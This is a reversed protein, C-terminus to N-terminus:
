RELVEPAQDGLAEGVRVILAAARPFRRRGIVIGLAAATLGAVLTAVVYGVAVWPHGAREIGAADVAMTSYTTWGGLLGTALFPRLYRTPGFRELLVTLVLGLLFAGSTNIVFTATTFHGAASPWALGLEYRGATGAAGGLFVAALVGPRARHAPGTWPHHVASPEGRDTPALDPDIPFTDAVLRRAARKSEADSM